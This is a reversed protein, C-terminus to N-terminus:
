FGGEDVFLAWDNRLLAKEHGLRFSQSVKSVFFGYEGLRVDTEPLEVVL